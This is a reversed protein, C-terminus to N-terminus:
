GNLLCFNEQIVESSPLLAKIYDILNEYGIAYGRTGLREKETEKKTIGNYKIIRINKHALGDFANLNYACALAGFNLIYYGTEDFQQIMKEETMWHLIEESSQPTPKGSLKLVSRFDLLDFVETPTKLNSAHLEEYHPTKSNLMLAGLEQRSAQRTTGGSRIYSDEISKSNISVPKVASEKIHIFLLPVGKYNEITHDLRIVPSISDRCLNSLKQVIQESTEKSVGILNATKDEIGFVLFGGGPHNAFASLHRSLKRNDPSLTAKWDLENIEQPIPELSHRLCELARNIWTKAM